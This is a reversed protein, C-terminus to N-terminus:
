LSLLAIHAGCSVAPPALAEVPMWVPVRREAARLEVLGAETRAAVATRAAPETGAEARAETGPETGAGAEPRLATAPPAAGPAAVDARRHQRQQELPGHV